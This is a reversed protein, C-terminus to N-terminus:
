LLEHIFALKQEVPPSIAFPYLDQLGMSRNVENFAVSLQKWHELGEAFVFGPGPNWTSLGFSFATELVDRLHLYHAFTEAWDEWPHVSAYLSIHEASAQSGFTYHQDLSGQYDIREDGFLERFRSLVQVQTEVKQSWFFHGLEHRFHGLVTRLSENLGCRVAERTVPDAESINITVVGACHGITAPEQPTPAVFRFSLGETSIRLRFCSFLLRRKGEELRGWKELNGPVSIDPVLLNKSCSLCFPGVTGAQWNCVSHQLRNQCFREQAVVCFDM